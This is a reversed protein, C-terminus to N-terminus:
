NTQLTAAGISLNHLEITLKSVHLQLMIANFLSKNSYDKQYSLAM